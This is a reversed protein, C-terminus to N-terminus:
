FYNPHTEYYYHHGFFSYSGNVLHVPRAELNFHLLFLKAYQPNSVFKAGFLMVPRRDKEEM